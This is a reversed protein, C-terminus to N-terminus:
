EVSSIELSLDEVIKQFEYPDANKALFADAKRLAAHFRDGKTEASYIVVKKRPYKSKIASALGLGEEKFNLELGVGQVDIFLIDANRIEDDDLSKVDALLRTHSWGSQKLIRVVRFTRDDDIFVIHIKGMCEDIQKSRTGKPITQGTGVDNNGGISVNVENKAINTNNSQSTKKRRLLGLITVLITVGGGSFLVKWNEAIFDIM